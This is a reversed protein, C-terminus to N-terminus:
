SERRARFTSTRRQLHDLFSAVKPSMHRTSPYVAHLPTAPSSWRPLVRELRGEALPEAALSEPVLALGLGGLVAEMMVGFDNVVLRPRGSIRVSERGRELVWAGRLRGAGFAVCTHRALAEPARPRGHRELHAPSAVLLARLTGLSRAVLSSDDLKGARIAVDFGEQVLDIVRDVCVLELQMAPHLELYEAVLGGLFDVNIPATVRLLGRPESELATVAREADEVEAVIRECHKFFIRGVDTLGLRRTTRQLLRAGLRRELESVRRSVTSKPMALEKAAATFSGTEVVRALVMMDDLNV